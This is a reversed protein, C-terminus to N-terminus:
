ILAENRVILVREETERLVFSVDIRLIEMRKSFRLSSRSFLVLIFTRLIHVSISAKKFTM